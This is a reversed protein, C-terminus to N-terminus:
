MISLLNTLIRLIALHVRGRFLYKSLMNTQNLFTVQGPCLEVYRLFVPIFFHHFLVNLFESRKNEVIEKENTELFLALFLFIKFMNIHEKWIIITEIIPSSYQHHWIYKAYYNTSETRQLAPCSQCSIPWHPHWGQLESRPSTVTSDSIIRWGVRNNTTRSFLCKYAFIHLFINPKISCKSFQYLLSPNKDRLVLSLTQVQILLM